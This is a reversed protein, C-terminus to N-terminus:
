IITKFMQIQDFKLPVYTSKLIYIYIYIYLTDLLRVVHVLACM